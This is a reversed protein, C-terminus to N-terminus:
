IRLGGVWAKPQISCGQSKRYQRSHSFSLTWCASGRTDASTPPWAQLLELFPVASLVAEQRFQLSAIPNSESLLCPHRARPQANCTASSASETSETRLPLRTKTTVFILVSRIINFRNLHRLRAHAVDITTHTPDDSGQATLRTAQDRSALVRSLHGLAAVRAFKVM